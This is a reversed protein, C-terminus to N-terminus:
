FTLNMLMTKIDDCRLSLGTTLQNVINNDVLDPHVYWDEFANWGGAYNVLVDPFLLRYGRKQFIARSQARTQYYDGVYFDHEFTVTAFRYDDFVTNDLLELANLTSRNDVDLDIQLYDLDKPYNNLQFLTHYDVQTADKVQYISLPRHQQYLAEFSTNYEVMLGRWQYDNELLFTNNCTIPHHAGLEIFYGNRKQKTMQIAFLDQYAQSYHKM